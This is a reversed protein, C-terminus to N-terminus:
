VIPAMLEELQDLFFPSALFASRPRLILQTSDCIEANNRRYKKSNNLTLDKPHGNATAGVSDDSSAESLWFATYIARFM